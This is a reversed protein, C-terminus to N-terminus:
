VAEKISLGIGALEAGIVVEVARALVVVADALGKIETAQQDGAESVAQALAETADGQKHMAHAIQMLAYAIAFGSDKEAEDYFVAQLNGSMQWDM